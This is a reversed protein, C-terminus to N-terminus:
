IKRHKYGTKFFLCLRCIRTILEPIEYTFLPEVLKTNHQVYSINNKYSLRVTTLNMRKEHCM